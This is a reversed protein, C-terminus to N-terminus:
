LAQIGATRLRSHCVSVSSEAGASHASSGCCVWVLLLLLHTSGLVQWAARRAVAELGGGAWGASVQRRQAWATFPSCARTRRIPCETSRRPSATDCSLAFSSSNAPRLGSRSVACATHVPYTRLASTAAAANSASGAPPPLPQCPRLRTTSQSASSLVCRAPSRPGLPRCGLVAFAPFLVATGGGGNGSFSSRSPPLDRPAPWGHGKARCVSCRLLWQGICAFSQSPLRLCSSVASLFAASAPRGKEIHPMCSSLHM